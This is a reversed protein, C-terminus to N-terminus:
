FLPLTVGINPEVPQVLREEDIRVNNVDYTVAHSMM